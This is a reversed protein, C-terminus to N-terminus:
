AEKKSIEMLKLQEEKELTKVRDECIVRHERARYFVKLALKRARDIDFYKIYEAIPIPMLSDDYERKKVAVIVDYLGEGRKNYHSDFDTVSRSTLGNYKIMTVIDRFAKKFGIDLCQEYAKLYLDIMQDKTHTGSAVVMSTIADRYDCILDIKFEGIMEEADNSAHAVYDDEALQKRHEFSKATYAIATKNVTHAKTKSANDIHTKILWASLIIVVLLPSQQWLKGVTEWNM